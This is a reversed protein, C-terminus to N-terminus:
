GASRALHAHRIPRLRHNPHGRSLGAPQAPLIGSVTCGAGGAPRHPRARFRVPLPRRQLRLSAGCRGNTTAGSYSFLIVLDGPKLTAVCSMQMHSDAVTCFKDTVTSFLHACENAMVMSAGSGMCVVRAAQEILEVARMVQAPEILELTQAVAETANRGVQAACGVVTDPEATVPKTGAAASHRALEIKFANFGKLKLTRCFRSISAEATGCEEALQTISMFQVQAPQSLVFDAVKRETATLQFYSAHIRELIDMQEDM